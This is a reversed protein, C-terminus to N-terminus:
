SCTFGGSQWVTITCSVPADGPIWNANILIFNVERVKRQDSFKGECDEDDYSYLPVEFYIEGNTLPSTYWTPLYDLTPNTDDVRLSYGPGATTCSFTPTDTKDTLLANCVQVNNDYVTASWSTTFESQAEISFYLCHSTPTPTPTSSPPPPTAYVACSTLTTCAGQQGSGICSTVTTSSVCSATNTVTSTTLTPYPQTTCVQQTVCASEAGSGNCEVTTTLYCDTVTTSSLPPPPTYCAMSTVCGSGNCSVIPTTPCNVSTTSTPPPTPLSSTPATPTAAPDQPDIFDPNIGTPNPVCYYGTCLHGCQATCTPGPPGPEYTIGLGCGGSGDRRALGGAGVPCSGGSGGVQEGGNVPLSDLEGPPPLDPCPGGNSKFLSEDDIDLLCSKGFVQGNWIIPPNPQTPNTVVVDPDNILLSRHFQRILAKM